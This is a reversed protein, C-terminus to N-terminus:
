CLFTSGPPLFDPHLVPSLVEVRVKDDTKMEAEAEEGQQIVEKAAKEDETEM